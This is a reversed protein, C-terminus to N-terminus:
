KHTRAPVVAYGQPPAMIQSRQIAGNRRTERWLDQPTRIGREDLPRHTNTPQPTCNRRHTYPGSGNCGDNGGNNYGYGYGYGYYPAYYSPEPEQKSAEYAAAAADAAERSRAAAEHERDLMAFVFSWGEKSDTVLPAAQTPIPAKLLNNTGPETAFKALDANTYVKSASPAAKAAAESDAALAFTTMGAITMALVVLGRAGRVPRSALAAFPSRQTKMPFREEVAM